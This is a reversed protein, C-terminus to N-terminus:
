LFMVAILRFTCQQCKYQCHALFVLIYPVFYSFLIQDFNVCEIANAFRHGGNDVSIIAVTDEGLYFQRGILSIRCHYYHKGTWYPAGSITIFFHRKMYSLFPCITVM